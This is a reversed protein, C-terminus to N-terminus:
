KVPKKRALEVVYAAVAEVERDTIRSGGRAPMVVGSKSTKADFGTKIIAVLEPRTGTSHLWKGDALNTNKSVAPMGEGGKGHCSFCLGRGEFTRKGLALMAATSDTAQAALTTPALLGLMLLLPPLRM